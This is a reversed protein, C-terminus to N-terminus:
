KGMVTLSSGNWRVKAHTSGGGAPVAGWTSSNSDSVNYSVGELPSTPLGSILFVPAVNCAVFQGSNASAPFAWAKAGPTVSSNTVHVGMLTNQKPPDGLFNVFFFGAVDFAGTIAIGAFMAAGVETGSGGGGTKIGYQPNAGGPAQGNTGEIRLGAFVCGSSSARFDIAISNNKFWCGTVIYVGSLDATLDPAVGPLFATGCQEFYCGLLNQCGQGGFTQVGTEYGVLRCNINAGDAFLLLGQSGATNSGPSLTCNEINIELSGFYAGGSKVDSTATNIGKNATITCNRIAGGITAGLRIGGGAANTNIIILGDIVVELHSSANGSQSLVYDAFNGSITAKEGLWCSTVGSFATDNFVIPQSVPYTGPPFYITGRNIYNFVIQDGAQVTGGVTQLTVTMGVTDVAEVTGSNSAIASPTTRDTAYMNGTVISAPVSAFPITNGTNSGTAALTVQAFNFAAMIAAWDDTVGDGKAGFDKVNHVTM